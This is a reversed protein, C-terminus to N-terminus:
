SFFITKVKALDLLKATSRKQFDDMLNEDDVEQAKALQVVLSVLADRCEIVRKVVNQTEGTDSRLTILLRSLNALVIIDAFDIELGPVALSKYLKLLDRMPPGVSIVSFDTFVLSSLFYECHGQVDHRPSLLDSLVSELTGVLSSSTTIPGIAEM